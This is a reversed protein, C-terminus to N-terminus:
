RSPFLVAVVCVFIFDVFFSSYSSFPCVPLCVQLGQVETLVEHDLLEWPVETERSVLLGLLVLSALRELRVLNVMSGEVGQVELPDQLALLDLRAQPVSTVKSGLCVRLVELVQSDLSVLLEMLDLTDLIEVLDLSDL